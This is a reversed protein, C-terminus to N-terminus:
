YRQELAELTAGARILANSVLFAPPRSCSRVLAPHLGKGLSHTYTQLAQKWSSGEPEIGAPIHGVDVEGDAATGGVTCGSSGAGRVQDIGSQILQECRAKAEPTIM